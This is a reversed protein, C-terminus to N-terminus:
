YLYKHTNSYAQPAYNPSITRRKTCLVTGDLPLRVYLVSTPLEPVLIEQTKVSIITHHHYYFVSYVTYTGRLIVTFEIHAHLIM